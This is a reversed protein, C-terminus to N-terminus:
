AVASQQNEVRALLESLQEARQAYTHDRLARRRMATGIQAAREDSTNRLVDV